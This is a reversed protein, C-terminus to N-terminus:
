LSSPMVALKWGDCIRSIGSIQRLLRWQEAEWVIVCVAVNVESDGGGRLGALVSNCKWVSGGIM